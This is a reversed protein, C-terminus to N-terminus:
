SGSAFGALKSAVGQVAAVLSGGETVTEGIIPKATNVADASLDSGLFKHLDGLKAMFSDIRGGLEGAEESLQAHEAMVQQRREESAQRLEPISISANSKEWAAFYQDRKARMAKMGNSATRYAKTLNNARSQFNKYAKQLNKPDSTTISELSKMTQELLNAYKGVNNGLQGLEKRMKTLEKNASDAASLGPSLIACFALMGALKWITRM